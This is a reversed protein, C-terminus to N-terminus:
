FRTHFVRILLSTGVVAPHIVAIFETNGVLIRTTAGAATLGEPDNPDIDDGEEVITEPSSRDSAMLGEPDNPDIDDGEEVILIVTGAPDNPDDDDGEEVVTEPSPIDPATLGEPDNPDIDDGEEVIFTLLVTDAMVEEAFGVAEPDNPDTDGGRVVHWTVPRNGILVQIVTKQDALDIDRIETLVTQAWLLPAAMLM